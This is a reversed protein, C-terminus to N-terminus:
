VFVCDKRNNWDWFMLNLRLLLIVFMRVSFFRRIWCIWRFVSFGYSFQIRIVLFAMSLFMSMMFWSVPHFFSAYFFLILKIKEWRIYILRSLRFFCVSLFPKSNRSLSLTLLWHLPDCIWFLLFPISHFKYTQEIWISILLLSFIWRITSRRVVWELTCHSARRPLHLWGIM